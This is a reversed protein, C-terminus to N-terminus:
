APSNKMGRREGDLVETDSAAAIVSTNVFAVAGYGSCNWVVTSGAV